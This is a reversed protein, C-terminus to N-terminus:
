VEGTRLGPLYIMVTTGNSGRSIVSLHDFFLLGPPARATHAILYSFKFIIIYIAACESENLICYQLVRWECEFM